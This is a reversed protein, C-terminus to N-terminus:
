KLSFKCNRVTHVFKYLMCFILFYPSCMKLINPLCLWLILIRLPIASDLTSLTTYVRSVPYLSTRSCLVSYLIVSSKVSYANIFPGSVPSKVFYTHLISPGASPTSYVRQLTSLVSQTWRVLFLKLKVYVLVSQTRRLLVTKSRRVCSCKLEVYILDSRTWLFITSCSWRKALVRFGDVLFCSFM